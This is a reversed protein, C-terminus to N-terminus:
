QADTPPTRPPAPSRLTRMLRRYCPGQEAAAAHGDFGGALIAQALIREEASLTLLVDQLRRYLEDRTTTTRDM